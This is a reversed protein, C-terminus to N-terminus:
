RRGRGRGRGHDDVVGTGTGVGTTASSGGRNRRGGHDDNIDHNAPDDAGRRAEASNFGIKGTDAQFSVPASVALAVALSFGAGALGARLIRSTM